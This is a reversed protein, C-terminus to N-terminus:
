IQTLLFPLYYNYKCMCTYEKLEYTRLVGILGPGRSKSIENECEFRQVHVNRQAFAMVGEYKASSGRM